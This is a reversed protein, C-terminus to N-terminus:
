PPLPEPPLPECGPQTLVLIGGAREEVDCRTMRALVDVAERWPIDRLSVTVSEQVYPDVLVNRGVQRGILEMVDALDLDDVDVDIRGWTDSWTVPVVFVSMGDQSVVAAAGLRRAIDVIAEVVSVDRLTVDVRGVVEAAICIRIGAQAAILELLTRADAQWLDLSVRAPGRVLLAGGALEEVRCRGERALLDVADRWAVHCLTLTVRERVDSAVLIPTGVERGIRDLVAALEEDEAFVTVRGPPPQACASLCLLLLLARRV